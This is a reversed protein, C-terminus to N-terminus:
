ILCVKAALEDILVRQNESYDVPLEVLHVGGASFAKEYTAIIDEASTVRHGTAGYSEAYKVFDPNNFELGWDAFGSSAQKWRIMGYSNDNLVTIVLNLGLRIATELEQSNMMFGGDGCIAMVRRDPNLMAAMMGSPLGAGMTALANDLLVTNPQYAKYNRAFWLKYMGNDLAIIDKEGMVKRIDAVFRQPIIPFRNDDAGEELHEDIALKVKDFYSRDFKVEGALKDKLATVSAALDGIIESQPFYVQDVIASKYNVHIVKKGGQEMFFPPKEIVDHGINIILDAREIACHLYDGSSLAATGLFLSSREDVVGKGMQTDFFPIRTTHVLDCMAERVNQRNAGAGILILPMKAAKILTVAEELAVENPGAYHRKHPTMIGATCDEAAIDEPLELLVAGPREEESLRFAERVLSPITNGHVIQKSMKCIPDFLGVVDIIQFQGQKSKKIPKQGTIMILPMGGLHAYAAPTALNTAGPGLTALCVGAKNTLRGYTAAMFGAGQEHRTLVLKISSKRLSELMDLNEEGPVAFIHDVGEAELAQVFLDSAKIKDNENM